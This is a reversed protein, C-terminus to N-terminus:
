IDQKTEQWVCCIFVFLLMFCIALIASAPSRDADVVCAAVIKSASKSDSDGIGSRFDYCDM